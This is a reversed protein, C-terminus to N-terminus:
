HIKYGFISLVTIKIIPGFIFIYLADGVTFIYLADGVTFPTGLQRYQTAM